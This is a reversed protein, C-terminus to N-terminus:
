VFRVDLSDASRQLSGKEVMGGARIRTDVPAEGNAIQSPTYFLNINEQLAGLALTLALGIGAVIALIILLRKRRLPNVHTEGSACSAGGTASLSAAGGGAARRQRAAGVSLPWVGVM